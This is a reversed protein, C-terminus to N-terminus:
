RHVAKISFSLPIHGEHSAYYCLGQDDLTNGGMGKACKAHEKFDEIFLDAKSLANLLDSIKYSWFFNKFAKPESAYGGISEEEDPELAFNFYPYKIDTHGHHIKEEDLMLYFPHSDHAYFFGDSKLYSKITQGWRKLDPLWGIAGDSTFVIDYAGQHHDMLTMIDSEIFNVGNVNLDKALTKAFYINEPVLDVGTVEAGLKALYISDAGTNCQLHLIKKGSIDGLEQLIIPNFRYTNSEFEKKFHDYHDKAVSAWAKKNAEIQYM